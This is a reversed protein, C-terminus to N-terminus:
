DDFRINYQIGVDDDQLSYSLGDRTYFRENFKRASSVADAVCFVRLGFSGVLYSIVLTRTTNDFSKWDVSVIEESSGYRSNIHSLLLILAVKDVLGAAIFISGKTYEKAYIQGVGMMFWSLLGALFPDKTGPNVPGNRYLATRSELVEPILQQTQADWPGFFATAEGGETVAYLVVPESGAAGGSYPYGVVPGSGSGSGPSSGPSSGLCICSQLLLVVAVGASLAKWMM